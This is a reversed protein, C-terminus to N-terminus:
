EPRANERGTEDDIQRIESARRAEGCELHRHPRKNGKLSVLPRQAATASRDFIGKLEHLQAGAPPLMVNRDYAAEAPTNWDYYARRPIPPVVCRTLRDPVQYRPM